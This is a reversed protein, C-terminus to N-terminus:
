LAVRYRMSGGRASREWSREGCAASNSEEDGEGASAASSAVRGTEPPPEIDGSLMRLFRMANLMCRVGTPIFDAELRGGEGIEFTFAPVGARTAEACLIGDQVYFGETTQMIYGSGFAVALAEACRLPEGPNAHPLITSPVYRGGRTPTHVDIVHRVVHGPPVVLDALRFEKAM